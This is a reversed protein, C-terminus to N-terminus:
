PYDRSGIPSCSDRHIFDMKFFFLLSALLPWALAAVKKLLGSFSQLLYYGPEKNNQM